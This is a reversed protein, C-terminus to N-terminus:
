YTAACGFDSQAQGFQGEVEASWGFAETFQAQLNKGAAGSFFHLVEGPNARRTHLPVTKGDAQIDRTPFCQSLLELYRDYVAAGGNEEYVPYFWDRFAYAENYGGRNTQMREFWDKAWDDLGLKKYADYIFIEAWKSDGWFEFSPSEKTNNNSGEVIHALEHTIVEYNVQTPTKWNFSGLDIVNRYGFGADFRHNITAYGYESNNHAVAYMRPDSGFSGYEDRMYSWVKKIHDVLPDNDWDIDSAVGEGFYVAIEDDYYVRTVVPNGPRIEDVITKPPAAAPSDGGSDGGDGGDAASIKFSSLTDNFGKPVLNAVDASFALSRGGFDRHEFIEVAAGETVKVSSFLDNWSSGIWANAADTCLSRGQYDIHEYFCATAGGPLEAAQTSLEATPDATTGCAALVLSLTGALILNPARNM